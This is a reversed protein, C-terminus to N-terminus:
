KPANKKPMTPRTPKQPMAPRQPPTITPKSIQPKWPHRLSPKQPAKELPTLTASAPFTYSTLLPPAIKPPWDSTTKEQKKPALASSQTKQQRLYQLYRPYEQQLVPTRRIRRWWYQIWTRAQADNALALYRQHWIWFHHPHTIFYDRMQSYAGNSKQDLTLLYRWWPFLHAHAAPVDTLRQLTNTLETRLAPYKDFYERMPNLIEPLPAVKLPNDLFRLAIDPHARFYDLATQFAEQMPGQSFATRQLMEASTRLTANRALHDYAAYFLAQARPDNHFAEDMRADCFTFRSQLQLESWTEEAEKLAPHTDLYRLYGQHLEALGPDATLTKEVRRVFPLAPNACAYLNSFLLLALLSFSFPAYPRVSCNKSPM